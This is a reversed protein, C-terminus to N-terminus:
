KFQNVIDLIYYGAVFLTAAVLLWLSAIRFPALKHVNDQIAQQENKLQSFADDLILQNEEYKSLRGSYMKLALFLLVIVGWVIWMTPVIGTM